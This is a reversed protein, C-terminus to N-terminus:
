TSELIEVAILAIGSTSREPYSVDASTVALTLANSVEKVAPAGPANSVSLSSAADKPSSALKAEVIVM